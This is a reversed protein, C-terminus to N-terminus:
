KLCDFNQVHGYIVKFGCGLISSIFNAKVYLSFPSSKGNVFM